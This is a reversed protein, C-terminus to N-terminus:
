DNLIIYVAESPTLDLHAHGKGTVDEMLRVDGARLIQKSGDSTTIEVEGSLHVILRREPLPHLPMDRSGDFKQVKVESVNTMAGLEPHDELRLEEIHSEGDSDSFIRYMAM